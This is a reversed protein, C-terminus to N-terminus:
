WKFKVIEYPDDDFSIKKQVPMTKLITFFSNGKELFLYDIKYKEIFAKKLSDISKGTLDGAFTYFPSLQIDNHNATIEFKDKAQPIEFVSLCIPYYSDTYRRLDPYPIRYDIYKDFVNIYSSANRIYASSFNKNIFEKKLLDSSTKRSNDSTNNRFDIVSSLLNVLIFLVFLITFGKVNLSVLTVSLYFSLIICVPIFLSTVIQNAQPVGFMITYIVFSVSFIILFLLLIQFNNLRKQVSYRRRQFYFGLMFVIIYFFLTGFVRLFYLILNGVLRKSENFSMHEIREILVSRISLENTISPSHQQCAYFLAIFVAPTLMYFFSIWSLSHKEFMILFLIFCLSGLVIAPLTTPYLFCLLGLPIFKEFWSGERLIVVWCLCICVISFKIDFYDILYTSYFMIHPLVMNLISGSSSILLITFPILSLLIKNHFTGMQILTAKVLLIILSFFLPQVVFILAYFAKIGFLLTVFAAFWLEFYHFFIPVSQLSDGPMNNFINASEIGHKVMGNIIAAYCSYDSLAAFNIQNPNFQFQFIVLLIALTFLFYGFEKIEFFLLNESKYIFGIKNNKKYYYGIFLLMPFLGAYMTNGFTKFIAFLSVLVIIGVFLKLSLSKAKNEHDQKFFLLSVHGIGYAIFATITSIFFYLFLSSNM